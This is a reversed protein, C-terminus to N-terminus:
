KNSASEIERYQELTEQFIKNFVEDPVDRKSDLELFYKLRQEEEQPSYEKYTKAEWDFKKKALELLAPIRFVNDKYIGVYSYDHWEPKVSWDDPYEGNLIQQLFQITQRDGEPFNRSVELYYKAKDIDKQNGRKEAEKLRQEASELYRKYFTPSAQRLRANAIAWPIARRTRKIVSLMEYKIGEQPSGEFREPNM